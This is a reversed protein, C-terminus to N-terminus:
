ENKQKILYEILNIILQIGAEDRKNTPTFRFLHYGLSSCANYKEMDKMFGAGSTHRGGTWVGGEIEIAIKMSPICYDLRWRRTDHFKFESVIELNYKKGIKRNLFEIYNKKEAEAILKKANM